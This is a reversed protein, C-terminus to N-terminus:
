SRNNAASMDRAVLFAFALSEYAFAHDGHQTEIARKAYRHVSPAYETLAEAYEMGIELPSAALETVFGYQRMTEADFESATFVVQKARHPGILHPLRQTGGWGPILGHDHEPQGFTSDPSAIRLDACAALEMGGGLCYGDICAIVPGPFEAVADFVDQGLKSLEFATEADMDDIRNRIDAGVSFARDGSGSLLLVHTEEATVSEVTEALENLLREDIANLETRRDLRVHVVGEIPATVDLTEHPNEHPHTM